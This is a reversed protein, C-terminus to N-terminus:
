FFGPVSGGVLIFESDIEQATKVLWSPCPVLAYTIANVNCVIGDMEEPGVSDFWEWIVPYTSEGPMQM